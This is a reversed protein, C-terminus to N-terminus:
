RKWPPWSRRVADAPRAAACRKSGAVLKREDRQLLADFDLAVKLFGVGQATEAEDPSVSLRTHTADHYNQQAVIAAVRELRPISRLLDAGVAPHRALAAREADSLEGGRDATSLVSEPVAICGLQSLSASGRGAAWDDALGAAAALNCVLQRVRLSRGFAAPSVMALVEGLVRLIARLPNELLDRQATILRHQDVGARVASM